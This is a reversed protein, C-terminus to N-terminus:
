VTQGAGTLSCNGNPAKKFKKQNIFIFSMLYAFTYYQLLDRVTVASSCLALMALFYM